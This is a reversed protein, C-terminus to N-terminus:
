PAWEQSREERSEMATSADAAMTKLTWKRVKMTRMLRYNNCGLRMMAWPTTIVLLCVTLGSQTVLSMNM